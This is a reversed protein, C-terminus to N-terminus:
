SVPAKQSFAHAQFRIGKDELLSGLSKKYKLISVNLDIVAKIESSKAQEYDKQYQVVQYNTSLGTMLKKQEAELKAQALERSVKTAVVLKHNSDVGRLADRIEQLVTQEAARIQLLTQDYSIKANAYNARDKVNWIPVKLTFGISWSKYIADLADKISDSRPGRIINIVRADEDNLPNGDYILKDGSIGTTWYSGQFDLSPLLQNKYYKVDLGKNKLTWDLKRIDPNRKRATEIAESLSPVAFRLSTEPQDTPDIAIAWDSAMEELSLLKKLNDEAAKISALAQIIESEKAAVEAKAALIDIPPLTGVQVQKENMALLDKAIQLAEEKVKLNMKTYVLNWYAEEVSYVTDTVTKELAAASEEKSNAAILIERKTSTLGFGKLLPQTFDAKLVANYNPNYASFRSNSENRVSNLSVTLNGGLPIKESLGITYSNGKSVPVSSGDLVSTNPSERRSRDYNLELTPIFLSYSGRLTNESSKYRSVEIALGINKALAKEICEQLSLKLVKEEQALAWPTLLLIAMLTLSLRKLM